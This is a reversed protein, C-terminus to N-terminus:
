SLLLKAEDETLGIKSLLAAKAEARAADLSELRAIEAEIEAVTPKKKPETLWKINTYDDDSVAFDAFDSLNQIATMIHISKALTM